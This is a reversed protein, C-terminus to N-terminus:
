RSLREICKDLADVGVSIQQMNDSVESTVASQEELASVITDVSEGAMLTSKEIRGANAEVEIALSQMAAIEAAIKDTASATQNALNKVENAVVAFGKGAEGARAAEITANLALLNVQDSIDRILTVIDGMAATNARLNDIASKATQNSSIIENIASQSQGMSRNIEQVSALLEETAGAVTQINASVQNSRSGAEARVNMIDTIDTAFKVVRYPRGDANMIPNYSAQIWIEKGGKGLCKFEDVFYIGQRLDDWFKTYASSEKFSHEVFMSHHQGRIEDLSYGMTQLFNENADIITGDLGFEIVAQSRGIASVIGKNYAQTTQQATIDSAFKVVKYPRGSFDLIPNYSAQIWIEKGGKGIRKFENVFFRGQRLDSWFQAYDASNKYTEEVFMSHHQGRIEDLSYGMTALFNDNANIITGELDFEIIAQSRHLAHLLKDNSAHLPNLLEITAGINEGTKSKVAKISLELTLDALKFTVVEHDQCDLISSHKYSTLDLIMSVDKGKLNRVDELSPKDSFLRDWNPGHTEIYDRLAQTVEIIKGNQDVCFTLSPMNNIYHFYSDSAKQPSFFKRM